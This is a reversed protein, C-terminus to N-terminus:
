CLRGPLKARKRYSSFNKTEGFDGLVDMNLNAVTKISCTFRTIGYLIRSGLLGQEEGTVALFVISREPKDKLKAFANAVSLVSAVGSANDVAGNYISDGKADPKGVGLYIM